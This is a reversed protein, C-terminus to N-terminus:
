SGGREEAEEAAMQAEVERNNGENFERVPSRPFDARQRSQDFWPGAPLWGLTDGSLRLSSSSGTLTALYRMPANALTM